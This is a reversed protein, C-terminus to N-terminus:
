KVAHDRLDYCNLTTQDRLFLLGQAIVPPSLSEKTPSDPVFRSIVHYQRPTMEVLLVDKSQNRFILNGGASIVHAIGKGDQKAAKWVVKGALMDFCVPKGEYMGDGMYIYKDDLVYQGCQNQIKGNDLSYLLKAKVGGADASLQLLATAGGYANSCFVYDGSVVPTPINTHGQAVQNCGWLFKGTSADIAVLGRGVLNVYQRVGGAETIVISSYGAQDNGQGRFDPVNPGRDNKWWNPYSAKWLLQGTQKDFATMVADPMGPTVVLKDGDVLPGESYGYHGNQLTSGFDKALSKRWLIKGTDADLCAVDSLGGMVYVRNGDVTPSAHEGDRAGQAFPTKWLLKQTSLQYCFAVAHSADGPGPDKLKGITYFRDAVVAVPAQGEGLGSLSFVPPPGSEPWQKLLHTDLSKGDRNPGRWQPWDHDAGQVPAPLPDALTTASLASTLILSPLLPRIM